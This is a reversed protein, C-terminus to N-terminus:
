VAHAVGFTEKFIEVAHAKFVDTSCHVSEFTFAPYLYDKRQEEHRKRKRQKEVLKAWVLERDQLFLLYETLRNRILVQM